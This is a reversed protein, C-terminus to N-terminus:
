GTFQPQVAAAACRVARHVLTRARAGNRFRVRASVTQARGAAIPVNARVVRTGATVRITKIRRGNVFLTVDRMSRGTVTVRASHSACVSAVGVRAIRAPSRAETGAVVAAPTPTTAAPAVGAAPTTTTTSPTTPTAPPTSCTMSATSLSGSEGSSFQWTSSLSFAGAPATFPVDITGSEPIDVGAVHSWNAALTGNNFYVNGTFKTGASSVYTVHISTCDAVAGSVHHASAAAPLVLALAAMAALAGLSKPVGRRGRGKRLAMTM